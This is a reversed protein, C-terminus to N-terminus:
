VSDDIRRVQDRLDPVILDSSTLRQKSGAHEMAACARGTSPRASSSSVPRSSTLLSIAPVALSGNGRSNSVTLQTSCSSAVDTSTLPDKIIQAVNGKSTFVTKAQCNAGVCDLNVPAFSNIKGCFKKEHLALIGHAQYFQENGSADKGSMMIVEEKLYDSSVCGGSIDAQFSKCVSRIRQGDYAQSWLEDLKKDEARISSPATFQSLQFDAACYKGVPCDCDEMCQVCIGKAEMKQNDATTRSWYVNCIPHSSQNCDSHKQCTQYTDAAAPDVLLLLLFLLLPPFPLSLSPLRSDLMRVTPVFKVLMGLRYQPPPTMYGVWTQALFKSFLSGYLKATQCHPPTARSSRGPSPTIENPSM